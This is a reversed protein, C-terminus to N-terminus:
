MATLTTLFYWALYPNLFREMKAALHRQRTFVLM